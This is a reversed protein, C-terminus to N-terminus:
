RSSSARLAGGVPKELPAVHPRGSADVNAQVQFSGPVSEWNGRLEVTAKGLIDLMYDCQTISVVTSHDIFASLGPLMEM